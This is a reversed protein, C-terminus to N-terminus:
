LKSAHILELIAVTIWTPYRYELLRHSNYHAIRPKVTNLCTSLCAHSLRQSLCIVVPLILWTNTHDPYISVGTLRSYAINAHVRIFPVKGLVIRIKENVYGTFRNTRSRTKSVDLCTDPHPLAKVLVELVIELSPLQVVTM